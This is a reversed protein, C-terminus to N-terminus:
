VVALQLLLYFALVVIIPWRLVPEGKRRSVFLFIISLAAVAMGTFRLVNATKFFQRAEAAFTQRQIESIDANGSLTERHVGNNAKAMAGLAFVCGGSCFCTVCVLICTEENLKKV